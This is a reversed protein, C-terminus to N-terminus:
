KCIKCGVLLLIGNDKIESKFEEPSNLHKYKNPIKNRLLSGKFCLAQTGYRFTSKDPLKPYSTFGLAYTRFCTFARYTKKSHFFTLKSRM